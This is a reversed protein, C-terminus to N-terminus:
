KSLDLLIAVGFDISGGLVAHVRRQPTAANELMKRAEAKKETSPKATEGGVRSYRGGNPLECFMSSQSYFHLNVKLISGFVDARNQIINHSFSLLSFGYTKSVKQESL